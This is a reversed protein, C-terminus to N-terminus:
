KSSNKLTQDFSKGRKNLNRGKYSVAAILEFLQLWNSIVKLVSSKSCDWYNAAKLCSKQLRVGGTNDPPRRQGRDASGDERTIVASANVARGGVLQCM